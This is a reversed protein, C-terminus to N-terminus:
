LPTVLCALRAVNTNEFCNDEKCIRNEGLTYLKERQRFGM